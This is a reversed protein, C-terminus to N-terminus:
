GDRRKIIREFRRRQTDLEDRDKGPPVNAITKRLTEVAADEEGAEFQIRSALIATRPTRFFNRQMALSAHKAATELDDLFRFCIAIGIHTRDEDAGHKLAMRLADVSAQWKMQKGLLLGLDRWAPAYDPHHRIAHRYVREAEEPRKLSELNVGALTVVDPRTGPREGLKVLIEVAEEDRGLLRYARGVQLYGFETHPVHEKAEDLYQLALKGDQEFTALVALNYLVKQSDPRRARAEEFASRAAPTDGILLHIEGSIAHPLHLDPDTIMGRRVLEKAEVIEPLSADVSTNAPRPVLAAIHYGLSARYCLIRADDPWLAGLARLSRRMMDADRSTTAVSALQVHYLRQARSALFIATDLHSRATAFDNRASLGAEMAVIFHDVDTVPAPDPTSPVPEGALELSIAKSLWQLGAGDSPHEALVAQAGEPDGLARRAIALGTLVEPSAGESELVAKFHEAAQHPFGQCLDQYGEELLTQWRRLALEEEGTRIAFENSIAFAAFGSAVGVAVSVAIMLAVTAPHRRAWRLARAARGPPRARVPLRERWRALDDAFTGASAYRRNPDKELAVNLVARLDRNIGRDFKRPDPAPLDRIIRILELATSGVFPRRFTLCEYLTAGLAHVDARRDAKRADGDVQEPAMYPLTGLLDGTRTHDGTPGGLERALGFDLVVPEGSPTLMINGPKIDRHVIGAEHAEHVARAAKELITVVRELRDRTSRRVSSDGSGSTTSPDTTSSDGTDDLMLEQFTDPPATDVERELRARAERIEEALSSGDVLRMAIFPIEDVTGADHVTCINPHQLRSAVEAERRFRALRGPDFTGGPLIKVAVRRGLRRQEAEFVVGMGGRGLEKLLRYEGFDRPLAAAVAPEPGQADLAEAARLAEELAPGLDPFERVFEPIQPREGRRRRALYSEVAQQLRDLNRTEEPSTM